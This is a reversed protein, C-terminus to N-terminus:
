LTSGSGSDVSYSQGSAGPTSTPLGKGGDPIAKAGTAKEIQKGGIKEPQKQKALDSTNSVGLGAVVKALSQKSEIVETSQTFLVIPESEQEEPPVEPYAPTEPTTKPKQVKEVIVNGDEKVTFSGNACRAYAGAKVKATMNLKLKYKDDGREFEKVYDKGELQAQRVDAVIKRYTELAEKYEPKAFLEAFKTKDSINEYLESVKDFKDKGFEKVLMLTELVSLKLALPSRMFEQAEETSEIKDKPSPSAIELLLRAMQKENPDTSNIDFNKISKEIFGQDLKMNEWSDKESQYAITKTFIGEKKKGHINRTATFLTANDDIDIVNKGAGSWILKSFDFDKEKIKDYISKIMLDTAEEGSLKIQKDEPLKSNIDTIRKKFEKEFVQRAFGIRGSKGDRGELVRHIEKNSENGKKLLAVFWDNLVSIVGTNLSKENLNQLGPYKPDGAKDKEKSADKILNKIKEDDDTVEGLKDHFKKDQSLRKIDKKFEDSLEQKQYDAEELAKIAKHRRDTSKNMEKAENARTLKNAKRQAQTEKIEKINEKTKGKAIQRKVFAEDKEADKLAKTDAMIQLELKDTEELDGEKINDQKSKGYGRELSFGDQKKLQQAYQSSNTEIYDLDMGEKASERNGIIIVDKINSGSEQSDFPMKFRRRDIALNSIEGTLYLKGDKVLLGAEKFSLRPDMYVEVDKDTTNLVKLERIGDQDIADKDNEVLMVDATKRLKTNLAKLKAERPTLPKESEPEKPEAIDSEELEKLNDEFSFTKHKKIVRPGDQGYVLDGTKGADFSKKEEKQEEPKANEGAPTETKVTKSQAIQSNIQAIIQKMKRKARVDSFKETMKDIARRNPVFVFASGIKIKVGFGYSFSKISLEKLDISAGVGLCIAQIFETFDGEIEKIADWRLSEAIKDAIPVIEEHKLSFTTELPELAKWLPTAKLLSYREEVSKEPTKSQKFTEWAKKENEEKIGIKEETKATQAQIQMEIPQRSIFIGAGASFKLDFPNFIVGATAGIDGIRTHAVASAAAILGETSIGATAGITKNKDDVLTVGITLGGTLGKGNGGAAVTIAAKKNGIKIEKTTGLGVGQFEGNKLSVGGMLLMTEKIKAIEEKSAGQAQLEDLMTQSLPNKPAEEKLITQAETIEKESEIEQSIIFGLQFAEMHEKTILAPADLTSLQVIEKKLNEGYKPDKKLDDLSKKEKLMLKQIAINLSGLKMLRNVETLMKTPDIKRNDNEDVEYTGTTELFIKYAAKPDYNRRLAGRDLYKTEGDIDSMVPVENKTGSLSGMLREWGSPERESYQFMNYLNTRILKQESSLEKAKEKAERKEQSAKVAKEDYKLAAIAELLELAPIM